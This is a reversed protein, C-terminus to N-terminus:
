MMMMEVLENFRTYASRMYPEVSPAAPPYDSIYDDFGVIYKSKFPPYQDSFKQVSSMRDNAKTVQGANDYKGNELAYELVAVYNEPNLDAPNLASKDFNFFYNGGPAMIDILEKAKDICQQKTGGKLLTIPYFGGLIMKDGLADKFQQPDGYEMYLRTGNPLDSLYDIYRTWDDECFIQMAQGREGCIHCGKHFTPWYFKEFDSKKLFTGMHTMIMNCGVVSQVKNQGRWISYPMLAEMADLVKQPVRRIDYNIQTFGRNFDALFDFPVLQMANVGAPASYLGYKDILYQNTEGFIRNLEMTAFATKAFQFMREVPDRYAANMRPQLKEIIFEHPNKTFEDYEEVAMISKEPHQVMGTKSMVNVQSKQFLLAIPNRAFGGIMNDGKAIEMIKEYMEILLPVSYNYQTTLLDKGAYQIIYEISLSNQVPFRDPIIGSYLDTFIKTRFERLEQANM